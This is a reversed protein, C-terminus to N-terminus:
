LEMKHVEDVRSPGLVEPAGTRRDVGQFVQAPGARSGKLGPLPFSDTISM